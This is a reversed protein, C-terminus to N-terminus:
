FILSLVHSIHGSFNDGFILGVTKAYPIGCLFGPALYLYISSLLLVVSLVTAVGVKTPSLTNTGPTLDGTTLKTKQAFGTSVPTKGFLVYRVEFSFHNQTKKKSKDKVPKNGCNKM